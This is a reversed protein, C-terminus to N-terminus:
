FKLVSFVDTGQIRGRGNLFELEILFAAEVVDGGLRRVLDITASMTGGTALLDDMVLIREGGAVADRHIEVADEGYELQYAARETRFPLKGPKRVPVVGCGLKYALAAAFLFGRAEIGVVREIKKGQYREAFLDIASRFLEGDQLLPTIDKFIIGKKPFDPIDRIAGRLREILDM